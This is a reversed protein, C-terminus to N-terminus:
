AMYLTLSTSDPDIVNIREDRMRPLPRVEAMDRISSQLDHQRYESENIVRLVSM